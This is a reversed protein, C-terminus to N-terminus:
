LDGLLVDIPKPISGVHNIAIQLACWGSSGQGAARGLGPDTQKAPRCQSIRHSTRWQREDRISHIRAPRPMYAHVPAVDIHGLVSQGASREVSECTKSALNPDYYAYHYSTRNVM